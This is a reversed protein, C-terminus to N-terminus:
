VDDGERKTLYHIGSDVEVYGVKQFLALSAANDSMVLAATVPIGQEGLLAEAAEILRTAYGRRRYDPDVALRNIWGKRSDHTVIVAAVLRGEVELGLITLVGSALQRALAERSDRGQPKISHLGTRQWLSLLNDYDNLSLRCLQEECM